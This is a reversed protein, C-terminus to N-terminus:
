IRLIGKYMETKKIINQWEVLNKYWNLTITKDTKKLEGSKLRELIERAGDEAVFKAKYGLSEIKDFNVRYSRHDPDGYWELVVDNGVVSAVKESLEKLRYNNEESGVNLIEKNVM